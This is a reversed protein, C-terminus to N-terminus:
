LTLKAKKDTLFKLEAMIGRVQMEFKLQVDTSSDAYLKQANSKILNLIHKEKPLLDTKMSDFAALIELAQQNKDQMKKLKRQVSKLQHNKVVISESIVKRTKQVVSKETEKSVTKSKSKKASAFRGVLSAVEISHSSRLDRHKSEAMSVQSRSINLYEALQAQSLGLLKRLEKTM